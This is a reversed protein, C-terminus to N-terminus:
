PGAPAPAAPEPVPVPDGGGRLRELLGSAEFREAPIEADLEIREIVLTSEGGTLLNRAHIETPLPRGDIERVKEYRLRKFLRQTRDYYDVQVPLGTEPDVFTVVKGYQHYPDSGVAIVPRGRLLAPLATGQAREVPVALGLDEYGFETALFSDARHLDDLERVRGLSPIWEFREVPGHSSAVVGYVVGAVSDPEVAEVLTETTGGRSRRAFDLKVTRAQDLMDASRLLIRASISPSPLLAANARRIWEAASDAASDPPESPEEGAAASATLLLGLACVLLGIRAHRSSHAV